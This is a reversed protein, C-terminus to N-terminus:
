QSISLKAANEKVARINGKIKDLGARSFATKGFREEFGKEDMSLIEEISPLAIERSDRDENFPCVEQCVDCGFFCEGMKDAIQADVGGGHEITLYSLCKSANLRFPGELAGTPCADVCLRCSGCRSEMIEAKSFELPATTLIEALFVYSGQRPIILMNNKGIFGIGAACAFSRELIPASDVCVRTHSEPYNEVIRKAATKALIRLRDHYDGKDPEAYRSASFGDPTFPKISSYPYALTIVTRCGELLKGPDERLDMHRELWQMEGQKGEAIWARFRDFFLPKEPLSFGAAIFGLSEAESIIDSVLKPNSPRSNPTPSQPKRTTPQPNRIASRTEM